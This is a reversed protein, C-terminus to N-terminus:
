IDSKKLREIEMAANTPLFILTQGVTVWRGPISSDDSQPGERKEWSSWRHNCIGCKYRRRTGNPGHRTEIVGGKSGCGECEFVSM